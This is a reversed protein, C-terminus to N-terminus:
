KEPGYNEALYDIIIRQQEETIWTAGFENVMDDMVWRWTKRDLRQSRPLELSHCAACHTEFLAKPNPDKTSTTKVEGDETKGDTGNRKETETKSDSQGTGNKAKTGSENESPMISGTMVYPTHLMLGPLLLMFALYWRATNSSKKQKSGQCSHWPLYRKYMSSYRCVIFLM